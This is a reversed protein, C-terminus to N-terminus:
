PMFPCMGQSLFYSVQLLFCSIILLVTPRSIKRLSGVQAGNVSRVLSLLSVVTVEKLADLQKFQTIRWGHPASRDCGIGMM